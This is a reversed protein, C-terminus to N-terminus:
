EHREGRIRNIILLYISILLIAPILFNDAGFVFLSIISIFLGGLAPLHDKNAEWQNIAVCIFLATMSFDIGTTDFPIINGLLSGMVSGLVWYFQNFLSLKFYYDDRNIDDRFEKSVVISFTEDTLAFISYIKNKKIKSYSDLMSIGYFLHRINVVITMIASSILSAGTTLLSVTVYQMSGAFIFLSMLAVYIFGIGKSSAIVGFGTGLVIYGAMVPLSDKFAEKTTKNM